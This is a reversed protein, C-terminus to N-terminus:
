KLRSVTFGPPPRFILGRKILRGNALSHVHYPSDQFVVHKAGTPVELVKKKSGPKEIIEIMQDLKPCGYFARIKRDQITASIHDFTEQITEALNAM